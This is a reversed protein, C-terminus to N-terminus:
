QIQLDLTATSPPPTASCPGPSCRPELVLRTEGPRGRMDTWCLHPCTQPCSPNERRDNALGLRWPQPQM